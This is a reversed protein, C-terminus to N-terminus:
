KKVQKVEVEIPTGVFGFKQRLKKEIFKIFAEPLPKKSFTYLLFHPPCADTQKIGVIKPREKYRKIKHIIVEHIKLVEKLFQDLEEQSLFKKRENQVKLVLDLIKKVREGTKASVFLIPAFNLYPFFHRYYNIYRNQTKADKPSVLDWKNAIIILGIKKELILGALHKDQRTLPLNAETVLLAVDAEELAKISRKVGAIELEPKIKAKKRIGATDILLYPQNKYVFLTDQPERTTFPIESVLVREKGLIANLLSSKGVNPKGIIAVKVAKEILPTYVKPLKPKIKITKIKSVIEDLLDGVGSGTVASVPIPKGLGLKLWKPDEACERIKPSDAKNGVLIIPKKTKLLSKAFELDKSVIGKKLDVVFLILDAEAVAIDIQKKIEKELYNKIKLKENKIEVIGGTDILVIEEDRWTCSGYNRDRTTGPIPSVLAKPKEVLCNFLTSKGVNARGVIAIHPIKKFTTPM